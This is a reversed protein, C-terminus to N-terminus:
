TKVSSSWKAAPVDMRKPTSMSAMPTAQSYLLPSAKGPAGHTLPYSARHWRQSWPGPMGEGHPQTAAM